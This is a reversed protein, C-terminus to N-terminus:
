AVVLLDLHPLIDVDWDRILVTMQEAAETATLGRSERERQAWAALNATTMLKNEPNM